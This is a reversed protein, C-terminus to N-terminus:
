RHEMEINGFDDIRAAWGPPVLVTCDAQTVVAPGRFAAGPDLEERAYLAADHWAGDHRLWIEERPRAPHPATARRRLEVPPAPRTAAVRLSVVQVPADQEAHGFSKDHAAHFLAALVAPDDVGDAPVALEFSQGVYRLDAWSTLTSTGPGAMEEVGLRAEEALREFTASLNQWTEGNLPQLVTRM